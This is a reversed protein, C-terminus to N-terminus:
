SGYRYPGARLRDFCTEEHLLEKSKSRRSALRVGHPNVVRFGRLSVTHIRTQHGGSNPDYAVVTGDNNVAEIAFVHGSRYAVMGPAPQAPPFRGWNIALNLPPIICGFIHLSVECGCFAHPCGAPRGGVVRGDYYYGAKAAPMAYNGNADFAHCRGNNDCSSVPSAIPTTHRHHHRPRAESGTPVTATFLLTALAAMIFKTM